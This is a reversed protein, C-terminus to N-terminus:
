KVEQKELDLQRDATRSEGNKWWWEVMSAGSKQM